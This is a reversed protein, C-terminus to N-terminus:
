CLSLSGDSEGDDMNKDEVDQRETFIKKEIPVGALIHGMDTTTIDRGDRRIMMLERFFPLPDKKFETPSPPVDEIEEGEITLAECPVGLFRCVEVYQQYGRVYLAGAFLNLLLTRKRPIILRQNFWNITYQRLDDLPLYSLSTRPAYVHLNVARCRRFDGLLQSVEWPSFIVMHDMTSSHYSNERYGTVIWQVPRQYQDAKFAKDDPLEVTRAFDETVLLERSFQTLDIFEAASTRRLAMFAPLFATSTPSIFGTAVFAKVDPHLYPEHPSLRQVKMVLREAQLEISLEREQEEQASVKGFNEHGFDECRQMIEELQKQKRLLLPDENRRALIGGGSGHPMPRYRTELDRSEEELFKSAHEKGIDAKKGMDSAEEWIAEQRQFRAGQTAWLPAIRSCDDLTEAISWRLIDAVTVSSSSDAHRQSKRVWTMKQRVEPPVFFVVSQGRGLKRMRMCAQVLADKTIGPGLLVAARYDDPLQLDVGRTHAQDLFVLCNSTHTSYPSDLFPEVYGGRTVTTLEDEDNLYIAADASLEMDLWCKAVELNRLELTQAGVDLIVRIPKEFDTAIQLLCESVSKASGLEKVEIERVSNEPRLLCNLVLANTHRQEDLELQRITLPLLYKSDNTGSFGTTLHQKTKAIDWGSTTLMHSFDRLENRFLIQSLYCDIARKNYRLYPFIHEICQDRDKPNVRKLQSYVTPFGKTSQALTDYDNVGEPSLTLHELLQFLDVDQLGGYYYSLCTLIIRLDPHSFESRPAPSDKARYPVAMGTPPSHNHDLGYNVRWRRRRFAFALIGRAFLGRLLLLTRSMHPSVHASANEVKHILEDGLEDKMMYHKIAERLPTPFGKGSQFGEIGDRRIRTGVAEVLAEGADNLIRISPFGGPHKSGSFAVSDADKTALRKAYEPVLNLVSQIVIWRHPAFDLLSQSGMTYTLEFRASLNDDSEDIIDRSGEDFFQQTELLSRGVALERAIVHELGLLNFSLLHEPQMLFVGGRSQCEMCMKRIMEANASDLKMERSFPLLYIRCGILGGLKKTLIHVMQKSQAKGVLIRVLRTGDALAAAVIPIIVSSKGEGMNLQMVANQNTSPKRMQAAISEQVHRIMVGSEVEFLLSEPFEMPDWNTHGVNLIEQVLDGQKSALEVLREARQLSTISRAYAVLRERWALSLAAWKARSLRELLMTPTVRPWLGPCGIVPTPAAPARSLVRHINSFISEVDHRCKDQYAVLVPKLTDTPTKLTFSASGSSSGLCDVSKELEGIYRTKQPPDNSGKMDGLLQRMRKQVEDKELNPSLHEKFSVPETAAIEPPDVAFLDEAAVTKKSHRARWPQLAPASAPQRHEASIPLGKVNAEVSDLYEKFQKKRYCSGFLSGVKHMIDAVKLYDSYYDLDSPTQPDECPWQNQLEGVFSDIIHQINQEKTMSTSPRDIKLDLAWRRLVEHSPELPDDPLFTTREPHHINRLAAVTTIALVVQVIGQDTEDAFTLAALFIAIRYRDHELDTKAIQNVIACWNRGLAASFPQLWGLHFDLKPTFSVTTSVTSTNRQTVPSSFRVIRALNIFSAPPVQELIDGWRRSEFHRSIRYAQAECPSPGSDRSNYVVDRVAEEEKERISCPDVRLAVTRALQRRVLSMESTVLNSIHKSKPFFVESRRAQHIISNVLQYIADTQALPSIQSWSVVTTAKTYSSYLNPHYKRTPSIAAIQRLSTIEDDSLRDFSRVAASSLIRLAEETGTRGTLRDPLFHTTVAHLQCLFLRSALAGADELRGLRSDIWYSHHRRVQTDNDITVSTKSHGNYAAESTVTGHPIIVTRQRAENGVTESRLVLRNQLSSLAGISQDEDVVFGRPHNSKIAKGRAQLTFRLRLRPLEISLTSSAKELTLHLFGRSEIPLLIRSIFSFTQSEMDVLPRSDLTTLRARGDGLSGRFTMLYGDSMSGERIEQWPASLPRFEITQKEINLWHVYNTVLLRPVDAGLMSPPILWHETVGEQRALIILDGDQMGFSMEYGQYPLRTTFRMGPISSPAVPIARDKFLKKYTPHTMCSHPLNSLPFNDVLLEGTLFNYGLNHLRSNATTRSEVMHVRGSGALHWPATSRYSPWIRRIADDLCPRGEEVIAKKLLPTSEYSLSIYRHFLVNLIPSLTHFPFHESIVMSSELMISAQSSDSLVDSLYRPGVGFTAHCTLAMSLARQSLDRRVEESGTHSIKEVLVRAWKICTSRVDALLALCDEYVLSTTLSLLRTTLCVFTALAVDAEWKAEIRSLADRLHRRLQHSFRQDQLISHAERSEDDGNRPGAENAAQIILYFTEPRNFNLTPMALQSLINYWQLSVAGRLNGFARFEDLGMTEPCDAQRAIVDNMTHSTGTAWDLLPAPVTLPAYWCQPPVGLTLSGPITLDLSTDYLDYQFSHSLIVNSATWNKEDEDIWRYRGVQAKPSALRFRAPNGLTVSNKLIPNANPYCLTVDSRPRPDRCFIDLLIVLTIERWHHFTAPLVLEFVVAKAKVPDEPIPWEFPSVRLGLAKKQTLCKPCSPECRKVWKNSDLNVERQHETDPSVYEAMLSRYEEHKARLEVLKHEKGAAAQEVIKGHLTKAEEYNDYYRVAFSHQDRYLEWPPGEKANAARYSLYNEIKTLRDMQEKKPLVLPVFLGAPFSTAYDLLLPCIKTATIDCAVWLEMITLLMVSTSEPDGAYVDKAATYYRKIINSLKGCMQTLLKDNDRGGSISTMRPPAAAYGGGNDEHRAEHMRPSLYEFERTLNAWVRGERAILRLGVHFACVGRRSCNKIAFGEDVDNGMGKKGWLKWLAVVCVRRELSCQQLM